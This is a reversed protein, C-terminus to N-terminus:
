MITSILFNVFLTFVDLSTLPNDQEEAAIERSTKVRNPVKRFLAIEVTKHSDPSGKKKLQVWVQITSVHWHTATPGPATNEKKNLFYIDYTISIDNHTDSSATPQSEGPMSLKNHSRGFSLNARCFM